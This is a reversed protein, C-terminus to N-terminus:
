TRAGAPAAEVLAPDADYGAPEVDYRAAVRRLVEARGCAVDLVRAGRPLALLEIAEDLAHRRSRTTSCLEGHAIRSAEARDVGRM